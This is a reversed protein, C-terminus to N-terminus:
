AAARRKAPDYKALSAKIKEADKDEYWPCTRTLVAPAGSAFVIARGRELAALDSVDMTREKKDDDRSTSTGQKSTSKSISTYRYDGILQSLEGLFEAESVGGGYVKVNAASWLKRMGERGWVEIGQSWSQLITDIVIGRSGYHSYLNPLEAWRCVNAAEDLMAVMPTALRGGESVALEEAAEVTAVTLATVLPGATGAGEKSLSYLTNRGRVFEHPKFEKRHDQGQPTIWRLVSRNTLCSAMQRATGFVGGRQKDPSLIVGNVSQSVQIYDNEKLIQVSEDNSEKNLWEYVKTIPHNELAAALLLGALLDKGASDFFADAKAGTARSGASFHSALNQAKVEDTVYSLPNWWWSPDEGSVQQPDFVFVDGVDERVGRTSDVIDRKNSTALVAGPAALIGPVARSTTKGTRPGWIDVCVDEWSSYLMRGSLTKAIPLGPSEVGMRQAKKRAQKEMMFGVESDNGMHRGAADVKRRNSHSKKFLLMWGGVVIGALLLLSVISMVTSSTTWEYKGSLTGFVAGLPSAEPIERGTIARGLWYGAYITGVALIFLGILSWLLVLKLTDSSRKASPAGM